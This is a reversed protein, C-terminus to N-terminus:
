ERFWPGKLIEDASPRDEPDIRLIDYLTRVIEKEEEEDVDEPREKKFRDEITLYRPPDAQGEPSVMHGDQVGTLEGMEDEDIEDQDDQLHIVDGRDSDYGDDGEGVEPIDDQPLLDEGLELDVNAPTVATSDPSSEPTWGPKVREGDDNFYKKGRRWVEFFELPYFGRCVEVIQILHEDIVEEDYPGDDGLPPDVSFLRGGTLVEYM